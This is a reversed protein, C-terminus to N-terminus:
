NSLDNHEKIKLIVTEKDKSFHIRLNNYLDPLAEEIDGYSIEGGLEVVLQKVEEYHTVIYELIAHYYPEFAKLELELFEDLTLVREVVEIPKM